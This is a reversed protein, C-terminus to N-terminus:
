GEPASVITNLMDVVKLFEDVESALEEDRKTSLKKWWERWHNGTIQEDTVLMAKTQIFDDRTLLKRVVVSVAGKADDILAIRDDPKALADELSDRM